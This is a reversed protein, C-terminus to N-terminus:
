FSFKLSFQLQRPNFVTRPRGFNPNPSGPIGVPLLGDIIWLGPPGPANVAAQQTACSVSADQTQIARTISDNYRRPIAPSGGCFAPSGYVSSVEDVNPHNFLNFADVSFDLRKGEGVRFNRSLRM